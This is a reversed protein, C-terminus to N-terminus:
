WQCAASVCSRTSRRCAALRNNNPLAVPSRSLAREASSLCHHCAVCFCRTGSPCGGGRRVQTSYMWCRACKSGPARTVGVTVVGAAEAGTDFSASALAGAAAAEASGCLTVQSAILLHKLEDAANGSANLGALWAALSASSVHLSVAAELSSGLAKDARAAELTKNVAERVAPLAAWCALEAESMSSWRQDPAAWGALFVSAPQSSSSAAEGSGSGSSSSSRVNLWADEAMHPVMPALASLLGQTDTPPDHM